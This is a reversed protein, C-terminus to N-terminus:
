IFNKNLEKFFKTNIGLGMNGLISSGLVTNPKEVDSIVKLKIEPSEGNKIYNLLTMNTNDVSLNEKKNSLILLALLFIFLICLINYNVTFLKYDINILGVAIILIIFISINNM